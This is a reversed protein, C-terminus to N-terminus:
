LDVYATIGPPALEVLHDPLTFAITVTFVPEALGVARSAADKLASPAVFCAAVAAIEGTLPEAAVSPAMFSITQGSAFRGYFRAPVEIVFQRRPGIPIRALERARVPSGVTLPKGDDMLRHYVRGAIPARVEEDAIQAKQWRTQRLAQQYADAAMGLTLAHREMAMSEAARALQAASESDLWAAHTSWTALADRGHTAAALTLESQREKLRAVALDRVLDRRAHESLGIAVAPDAAAAHKEAANGRAIRASTAAARAEASDLDISAFAALLWTIRAREADLVAKRAEVRAKALDADAQQRALELDAKAVLEAFQVDFALQGPDNRNGGYGFGFAKNMRAVVAGAAVTAGDPVIERLEWGDSSLLIRNAQAAEVVGALRRAGTAPRGARPLVRTGPELGSLAVFDAGIAFGSIAVERGSALRVSPRQLNDVCWLPVTVATAPAAVRLEAAAHMGPRLRGRLDDPLGTLRVTCAFGRATGDRSTEPLSGVSLVRGLLPRHDLAPFAIEVTSGDDGAAVLGRWREPILFGVVLEREDLVFISASLTVKAGASLGGRRHQVLGDAAAALAPQALIEARAANERRANHLNRRTAKVQKDQLAALASLTSYIGTNDAQNGLDLGQKLADIQLRRRTATDSTTALLQLRLRPVEVRATALEVADAAEDLARRSAFGGADLARLRTLRDGAQALEREAKALEARAIVLQEEDRVATAAIAAALVALQAQYDDRTALLETLRDDTRLRDLDLGAQQESILRDTEGMWRRVPVADFRLLPEGTRVAEGEDRVWEVPVGPMPALHAVPQRNGLSGILPLALDGALPLAAYSEEVATVAPPPPACASLIVLAILAPGCIRLM